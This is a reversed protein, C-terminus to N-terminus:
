NLLPEPPMCGEDTRGHGARQHAFVQSSRRLHAASQLAQDGASRDCAVFGVQPLFAKSLFLM